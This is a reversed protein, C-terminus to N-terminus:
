ISVIFDAKRRGVGLDNIEISELGNDTLKGIASIAMERGDIRCLLFHGQENGGWAKTKASQFRNSKPAREDYKGAGGTIFYDTVGDHSHQLNHEHGNFFVRVGAQHGRENMLKQLSPRSEHVPGACYVPHHSFAIRWGDGATVPLVREIFPRNEPLEFFRKALLHDKSTDLCIFDIRKGFQFRYLLGRDTIADQPDRLSEFHARVYLNDYLQDRDDMEETEGEDHNGFTPFTPIRNIIYRYPQYYTYFWDTDEDGSDSVIILFKRHAYVNDGTTLMFRVDNDNVAKQLAEAIGAQ